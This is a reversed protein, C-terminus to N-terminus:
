LVVVVVDFDGRNRREANKIPKQKYVDFVLDIM